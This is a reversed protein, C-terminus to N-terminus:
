GLGQLDRSAVTELASVIIPTWCHGDLTTVLVASWAMSSRAQPDPRWSSRLLPPTADNEEPVIRRRHPRGAPRPRAASPAGGSCIRWSWISSMAFPDVQKSAGLTRRLSAPSISQLEDRDRRMPAEVATAWALSSGGVPGPIKFSGPLREVERDDLVAEEDLYGPVRWAAAWTTSSWPRRIVRSAASRTRPRVPWGTVPEAGAPLDIVAVDHYEGEFIASPMALVLRTM